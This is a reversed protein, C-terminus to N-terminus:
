DGASKWAPIVRDARHPLEALLQRTKREFLAVYNAVEGRSMVGVSDDLLGQEARKERLGLEQRWRGDVVAEFSSVEIMWLADLREWFPLYDEKLAKESWIVWRGDPDDRAERANIPGEWAPGPLAGVCWGELLILDPRGVFSDFDAVPVRDDIAKDFRPIRTVATPGANLLQDLIQHGRGIDHTGPLGRIACLAHVTRGLHLREARTLYLDDISLVLVRHNSNESILRALNACLTSKGSGQAGSIGLVFPTTSAALRDQIWAFLTPDQM